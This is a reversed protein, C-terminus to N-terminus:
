RKASEDVPKKKQGGRHKRHRGWMLKGKQTPQDRPRYPDKSDRESNGARSPEGALQQAQNSPNQHLTTDSPSPIITKVSNNALQLRAPINSEVTTRSDIMSHSSAFPGLQSNENQYLLRNQIPEHTSSSDPAVPLRSAGSKSPGAESPPVQRPAPMPVDESRPNPTHVSYEKSPRFNSIPVVGTGSSGSSMSSERGVCGDVEQPDGEHMWTMGPLLRWNINWIGRRVWVKTVNESAETNIDPSTINGAAKSKIIREREEKLQYLFQYIPRSAERERERIARQEAYRRRQNAIKRRGRSGSSTPQLFSDSDQDREWGLYRELPEEHKWPGVPGDTWDTKWMGQDEWCRQIAKRAKFELSGREALGDKTRSLQAMEEKVQHEFQQRPLSNQRSQTLPQSNQNRYHEYIESAPHCDRHSTSSNHHQFPDNVSMHPHLNGAM